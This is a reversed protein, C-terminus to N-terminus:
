ASDSNGQGSDSSSGSDHTPVAEHSTDNSAWSSIAAGWAPASDLEHTVEQSASEPATVENASYNDYSPSSDLITNAAITPNDFLTVSPAENSPDVPSEIPSAPPDPPIGIYNLVDSVAQTVSNEVFNAVNSLSNGVQEGLSSPPACEAFVAVAELPMVIKEGVEVGYEHYADYAEKATAAAAAVGGIPSAVAGAAIAPANIGVVTAGALVGGAMQADAIAKEDHAFSAITEYCNDLQKEDNLHESM